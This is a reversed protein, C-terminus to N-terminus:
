RGELINNGMGLFREEKESANLGLWLFKGEKGSAERGNGAIKRDEWIRKKIEM